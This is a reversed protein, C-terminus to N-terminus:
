YLKLSIHNKASLQVLLLLSFPKEKKGQPLTQKAKLFLVQKKEFPWM